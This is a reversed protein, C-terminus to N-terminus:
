AEPALVSRVLVVRPVVTTVLERVVTPFRSDRVMAPLMMGEESLVLDIPRTACLNELPKKMFQLTDVSAVRLSTAQVRNLVVPVLMCVLKPLKEVPVALVRKMLLGVVPVALMLKVSLPVLVPMM